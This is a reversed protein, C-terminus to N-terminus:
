EAHSPSNCARGLQNEPQLNTAIEVGKPLFKDCQGLDKRNLELAAERPSFRKAVVAGGSNRNTMEASPWYQPATMATRNNSSRAGALTAQSRTMPAATNRSANEALDSLRPPRQDRCCNTLTPRNPM